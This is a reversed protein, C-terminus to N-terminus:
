IGWVSQNGEPVWVPLYLVSPAPLRTACPRTRSSHKPPQAAQVNRAECPRQLQQGAREQQEPCVSYHAPVVHLVEHGCTLFTTLARFFAVM